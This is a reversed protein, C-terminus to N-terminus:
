EKMSGVILAQINDFVILDFPGHKRIFGDLWEQGDKTNLPQMPRFDDVSLIVLGEPKVGARRAADVLRRKFQRKSMEGDIFLVRAQRQTRWHLFGINEAIAFAVALAFMTKGLGTPGILLGRSTTSLLEGLLFDP